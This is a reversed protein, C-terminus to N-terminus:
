IIIAITSITVKAKHKLEEMESGFILKFSDVM